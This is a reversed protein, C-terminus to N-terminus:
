KRTDGDTREPSRELGELVAEVLAEAIAIAEEATRTAMPHPVAVLPLNEIGLSRAEMQALPLFIESVVTITPIGM